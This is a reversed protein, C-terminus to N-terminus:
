YGIKLEIEEPSTEFEDSMYYNDKELDYKYIQIYSFFDRCELDMCENLLIVYEQEGDNDLDAIDKIKARYIKSVSPSEPLHPLPTTTEDSSRHMLILESTTITVTYIKGNRQFDLTTIVSILESPKFTPTPINSVTPYPVLIQQGPEIICSPQLNNLEIISSVSVDFNFAISTCSDGTPVIYQFSIQPTKTATPKQTSTHPLLTPTFSPSPTAECAAVLLSLVFYLFVLFYQNPLSLISLLKM